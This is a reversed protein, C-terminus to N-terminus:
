MLLLNQHHAGLRNAGAHEPQITSSNTGASCGCPFGPALLSFNEGVRFPADALTSQRQHHAQPQGGSM